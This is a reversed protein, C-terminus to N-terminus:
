HATDEAIEPIILTPIGIKRLLREAPSRLLMPRLSATAVVVTAGWRRAEAPVTEIAPGVRSRVEVVDRFGPAVNDLFRRLRENTAAVWNELAAPSGIGALWDDSGTSEIAHLLCVASGHVRQLELAVGVARHSGISYSVPVLVRDLITRGTEVTPALGTTQMTPHPADSVGPHPGRRRGLELAAVAEHRRRALGARPAPIKLMFYLDMEVISHTADVPKITIVSRGEKMDGRIAVGELVRADGNARVSGFRMVEEFEIRLPGVYVPYRMWVDITEGTHAVVRATAFKRHLEAIHAFDTATKL